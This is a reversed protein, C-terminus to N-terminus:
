AAQELAGPGAKGRWNRWVVLVVVFAIGTMITSKTLGIHLRRSEALLDGVATGATRAVAVVFWYSMISWTNRIMFLSVLLLLLTSAAAEKLGMMHSADDGLVTGLVGATLMALWYVADTDPLAKSDDAEVRRANAVFHTRWALAALLACVGLGLAVAPVRMRFALYDAINTAGTRILIIVLWYWLEHPRNDRREALFCIGALGFLVAL